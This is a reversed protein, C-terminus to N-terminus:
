IEDDIEIDLPPEKLCNPDNMIKSALKIATAFYYGDVIREDAVVRLDLAKKHEVNLEKDVVQEKTRTGFAIFATNTGINYLHHYVPKIGISGVDTVFISSHFPSLEIIFKPLIGMNDLLRIFGIAGAVIFGPVFRFFKVFRDTNNKQDQQKNDEIVKNVKEIVDYITADPQFKVKVTTEEGKVSMEKKIAFSISIERRAYHKRGRIFRNIKPKQSIVRVMSAIVIHLFGCRYGESRLDRIMQQATAIYIREEFFIQSESREKMLHPIIRFFPDIKRLRYGDSRDGLRRRM